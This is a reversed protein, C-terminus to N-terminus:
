DNVFNAVPVLNSVYIVYIIKNITASIPKLTKVTFM